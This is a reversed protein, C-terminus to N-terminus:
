GDFDGRLIRESVPVADERDDLSREIAGFNLLPGRDFAEIVTSSGSRGCVLLAEPPLLDALLPSHTTVIFQTGGMRTRTKLFEALLRIRRPHIGNEPEEFAILTSPESASAVALLGLIRLTGESVLRAPVLVGDEQLRLEVEGLANPQVDIREVQPVLTRLSKEVAGFQRPDVARLTNLFAALEEGMLGIHRVEKVPNVARMRERPEFYFFAWDSLEQRFAAIHPYHPPYLPRSVLAHDLGIEHYTPHAQGELRLHLRQGQREIFASRSAKKEGDDRLAALYEDAVRLIGSRPVIEVQLRYRLLREKITGGRRSEIGNGSRMDAIQKEVRDVTRDSLAVDIEIAFTLRDEEIHGALGRRGFSFSELPTGRYPPEFAEALIRSTVIRSLLQLADLFNSKGAANPGFLVSLPQLRVEVERLSKYGSIHVRRIM